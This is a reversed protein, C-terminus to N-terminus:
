LISGDWSARKRKSELRSASLGAAGAGNANLVLDKPNVVQQSQMRQHGLQQQQQQQQSRMLNTVPFVQRSLSPPISFVHNLGAADNASTSSTGPYDFDSQQAQNSVFDHLGLYQLAQAHATNEHTHHTDLPQALDLALRAEVEAQTMRRVGNGSDTSSSHAVDPTPAPTDVLMATAGFNQQLQQNNNPHQGFNYHSDLFPLDVHTNVESNVGIGSPDIGGSTNSGFLNSPSSLLHSFLTTADTIANAGV